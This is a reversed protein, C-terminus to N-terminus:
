LGFHLGKHTRAIPVNQIYQDFAATRVSNKCNKLSTFFGIRRAGAASSSVCQNIEAPSPGLLLGKHNLLIPANQISVRFRRFRWNKECRRHELWRWSSIQHLDRWSRLCEHTHESPASQMEAWFGCKPISDHIKSQKLVFFRWNNGRAKLSLLLIGIVSSQTPCLIIIGKQTRAIEHMKIKNLVRM